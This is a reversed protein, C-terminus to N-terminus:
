ADIMRKTCETPGVLCTAPLFVHTLASFIHAHLFIVIM